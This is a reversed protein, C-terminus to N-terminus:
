AWGVSELIRGKEGEDIIWGEENYDLFRQKVAERGGLKM